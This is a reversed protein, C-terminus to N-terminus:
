SAPPGGRRKRGGPAASAAFLGTGLAVALRSALRSAPTTSLVKDVGAMPFALTGIVQFILGAIAAGVAGAIASGVAGAPGRGRGIGAAAGGAAGIPAWLALHMLMVPLLDQKGPTRIAEYLPAAGYAAAAGALGGLVLGAAGGLAAGRGRRAALGAAAGMALGLLGGFASLSRVATLRDAERIAEATTAMTETEQGMVMMKSEVPAVRVAPSEGLGWAALAALIAGVLAAVRTRGASAPRADDTAIPPPGAPTPDPAPVPPHEAAM